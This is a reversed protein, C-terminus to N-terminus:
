QTLTVPQLQLSLTFKRSATLAVEQEVTQYGIFSFRVMYKGAPLTLSYFGYVNTVTGFSTGPVIVYVGPLMEGNEDSIYGNLTYKEQCFSLYSIVTAALFLLAKKM